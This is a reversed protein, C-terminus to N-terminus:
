RVGALNDAAPEESLLIIRTGDLDYVRVPVGYTASLTQETLVIGAPGTALAQGQRMLVAFSAVSAALNPDHTTLVVTVGRTVLDRVIALLRGRNSLDLHATPEDMLLIRPQQALARALAVLQREGGSLSPVTRERLPDLGVLHLAALAVQRDVEGPMQLPSLYPARGLLVYELVSFDFPIHEDQPVLGILQSRERRSYGQQPRGALHIAGAAPRLVGLLLRLLTTKGSGNPGLIATVAGAPVELSLDHLVARGPGDYSFSLSSVSLIAPESRGPREPGTLDQSNHSM